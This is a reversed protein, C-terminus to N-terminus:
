FFSTSRSNKAIGWLSLWLVPYNRIAIAGRILEKWFITMKDHSLRLAQHVSIGEIAVRGGARNAMLYATQLGDLHYITQQGTGLTPLTKNHAHTSV